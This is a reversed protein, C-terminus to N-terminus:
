ISSAKGTQTVVASGPLSQTLTEGFREPIGSERGHETVISGGFATKGLKKNVEGVVNRISSGANGHLLM